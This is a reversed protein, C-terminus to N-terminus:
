RESGFPPYPNGDSVPFEHACFPCHCEADPHEAYDSREVYYEGGCSPCLVFAVKHAGVVGRGGARRQIRAPKGTRVGDSPGDGTGPQVGPLYDSLRIRSVVEEPIFSRQEYVGPPAPKTCDIGGRTGKTGGLSTPDLNSVQMDPLVILDKAWDSRTGVAWHVEAEDFINVDEDFVFVYKIAEPASAVTSIVARPQWDETKHLQVYMYFPCSPPRYVNTVQPVTRSLLDFMFGERRLAGIGDDAYGTVISVWYADERRSVCTVDMYPNLRQGGFYRPFEGFPGEARLKGRPVIGEIVYEADAPVLFDDGLTESAVLRLPQGLLGGAAAFHSEPFGLKGEAGICAAPHHGVWYAVRTDDGREETTRINWGNHSHRSPFIRIERQNYIWGRQLASNDICSDPEYTTLYGASLYPGPDWGAHVLAPLQSLDVADGRQVVQKVPADSRDVVVPKVRDNRREFTDRAVKEFTSGVAFASRSRSAFLNLVVPQEALNGDVKRVNHLVLVPPERLAKQTEISLAAAEWRADVEKHVHAVLEPHAAEYDALFTHLDRTKM